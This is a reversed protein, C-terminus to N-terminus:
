DGLREGVGACVANVLVPAALAATHYEFAAHRALACGLALRVQTAAMAASVAALVGLAVLYTRM